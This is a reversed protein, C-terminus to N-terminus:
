HLCQHCSDCQFAAPHSARARKLTEIWASRRDLLADFGHEQLRGVGNDVDPMGATQCCLAVTGDWDVFLSKGSLYACPRPDTTGADVIIDEGLAIDFPRGLAQNERVWEKVLHLRAEDGTIGAARTTGTEILPVFLVKEAGTKTLLSDYAAAELSLRDTMTFQLYTRIGLVALLQVTALTTDFTGAGRIADHRAADIGDFSVTVHHPILRHCAQLLPGPLTGNTTISYALSLAACEAVIEPLHPYLTPEGGSFSVGTVGRDRADALLRKCLDRDIDRRFHEPQLCHACRLNCRATLLIGLHRM